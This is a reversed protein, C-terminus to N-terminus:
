RRSRPKGRLADILLLAHQPDGEAELNGLLFENVPNKKGKLLAELLASDIRISVTNDYYRYPQVETKGGIRAVYFTGGCDADTLTIEAALDCSVGSFDAKSAYTEKLQTFKEEFTM